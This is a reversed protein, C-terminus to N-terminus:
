GELHAVELRLEGTDLLHDLDNRFVVTAWGGELTGVKSFRLCFSEHLVKTPMRGGSRLQQDVRLPVVPHADALLLLPYGSLTHPLYRNLCYRLNKVHSFLVLEM